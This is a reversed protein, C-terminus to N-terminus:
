INEETEVLTLIGMYQDYTYVMEPTTRHNWCYERMWVRFKETQEATLMNGVSPDRVLFRLATKGSGDKLMCRLKLLTDYGSISADVTAFTEILTLDAYIKQYLDIGATQRRKTADREVSFATPTPDHDSVTDLIDQDQQTTPEQSLLVSIKDAKVMLGDFIPGIIESLEDHLKRPLIIKTFHRKTQM